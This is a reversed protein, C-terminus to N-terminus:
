VYRQPQLNQLEREIISANRGLQECVLEFNFCAVAMREVTGM